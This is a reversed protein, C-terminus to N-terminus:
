SISVVKYGAGDITDILTQESVDEPLEVIAEADELSVTANVGPIANLLKQVRGSCGTCSMGEIAIKKTM